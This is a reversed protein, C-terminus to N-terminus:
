WSMAPSRRHRAARRPGPQRRHRGHQPRGVVDAGDLLREDLVEVPRVERRELLGGREGLEDLVEPQGVVLHGLADALATRRHGVGQAQEAQRGADLVQEGVALQRSPM